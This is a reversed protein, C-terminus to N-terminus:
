KRKTSDPHSNHCAVCAAGMIVPSIMRVRSSLGQQTVEFQTEAPNKRLHALSTREFADLLHTSRNRFPYDSVFRYGINSQKESMVKGLALSLTAPLPIGGAIADFDHRVVINEGHNALVRAVVESSYYGRIGSIISNMDSAQRQLSSAALNKMDLWVAVPLGALLGLLVLATLWTRSIGVGELESRPTPQRFPQNM